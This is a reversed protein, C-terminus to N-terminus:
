CNEIMKSIKTRYLEKLFTKLLNECTDWYIATIEAQEEMTDSIDMVADLIEPNLSDFVEELIAEFEGYTYSRLYIIFNKENVRTIDTDDTFLEELGRAAIEEFDSKVNEYEIECYNERFFTDFVEKDILQKNEKDM